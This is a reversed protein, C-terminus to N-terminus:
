GKLQKVQIKLKYFILITSLMIIFFIIVGFSYLDFMMFRAGSLYMKSLGSGLAIIVFIHAMFEVRLTNLKEKIYEINDM